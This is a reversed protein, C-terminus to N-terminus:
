YEEWVFLRVKRPNYEVDNKDEGLEASIIVDRVFVDYERSALLDQEKMKCFTADEITDSTPLECIRFVYGFSTPIKSAIFDDLDRYADNEIEYYPPNPDLNIRDLIVLRLSVSSAIDDLIEWELDYIYDGASQERYPHQSYILLMASSIILVSITAELIRIWGRKNRM